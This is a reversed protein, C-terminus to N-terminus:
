AQHDRFETRVIFMSMEDLRPKPLDANEVPSIGHNSSVEIKLMLIEILLHM